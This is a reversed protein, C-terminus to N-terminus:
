RVEPSAPRSLDFSPPRGRRRVLLGGAAQERMAKELGFKKIRYGIQRATLGLERAAHSQVWNHRQLAALVERREMEELRHLGDNEAQAAGPRSLQSLSLYPTLDQLEVEPRPSVLTLRELLNGLEAVNGPWDHGRLRDLAPPSFKLRRGLRAQLRDLFHELLLPLDQLRERLPPLMVPFINLRYFLDERFLGEAVAASLDKANSAVLRVDLQRPQSAGLREMEHDQALRLLKAQLPLSLEGIQALYVTGGQCAELYGPQEQSGRGLAGREQGFLALELSEAPWAACDVRLFPRSARPSAQHVLQAALSKGVGLEGLLLVPVKSPAVRELLRRAQALGPSLGVLNDGLGLEKPRPSLAPERASGRSLFEDAQLRLNGSEM